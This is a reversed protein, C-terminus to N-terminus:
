FNHGFIIGIVMMPGGEIGEGPKEQIETWFQLKQERATFTEMSPEVWRTVRRSDGKVWGELGWGFGFRVRFDSWSDPDASTGASTQLIM